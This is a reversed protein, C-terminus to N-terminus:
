ETLLKKNTTVTKKSKIIKYLTTGVLGGIVGGILAFGLATIVDIPANFGFPALMGPIPSATGPANNIIKFHAAVMGALGGGIFDSLYVPIPNKTIIDAQTLPELMVAIVNSSDGIKLTKFVIGNTFAGGFSAISAIGMALGQLGLMATLAMSSLPSTCLIKIIGGLLFGMVYPSQDAAVVIMDGISLLTSDVIPAVTVAILRSLPAILLAGVIVDTGKPLKNKLIPAILGIIYGAIFGPLIGLKAVAAGAVVAYVPSIGMNLGVLIAAIPGGMSGSANGVEGLFGINLFDGSIYKHIAEVLFTAVAAGALGSMAKDGKPAKLSFGSFLILALLLLGMGKTIALM